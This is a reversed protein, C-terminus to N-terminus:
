DRTRLHAGSPSQAVVEGGRRATVVVPESPHCTPGCGTRAFSGQWGWPRCRPSADSRRPPKGRASPVSVKNEPKLVLYLPQKTGRSAM